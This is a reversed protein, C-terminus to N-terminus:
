KSEIPRQVEELKTLDCPDKLGVVEDRKIERLEMDIDQTSCLESKGKIKWKGGDETIKPFRKAMEDKADSATKKNTSKTKLVLDKARRAVENFEDRLKDKMQNKTKEGSGHGLFVDNGKNDKRILVANELRWANGIKKNILDYALHNYFVAHDGIVLDDESSPVVKQLSALGPKTVIKPKWTTIVEAQLDDFANWRLVIKDAGFKNIRKNFETKGVSDAFSRFNVLSVLYDCHLLTRLRPPKQPVFLKIIAEYPDKKGADTLTWKYSSCQDGYVTCRKSRSMKLMEANKKKDTREAYADPVSPKWYDRADYNVRPGYIEAPPNFPYGFARKDGKVTQQTEQMYTVTAVRKVIERQLEDEDTFDFTDSAAAMDSMIAAAKSANTWKRAKLFAAREKAKMTAGKLVVKKQMSPGGNQQVVHTLEHALLRRGEHTHPSYQGSGFVINKGVTYALANVSAASEAARSDSHVRVGSFDYGLLASMSKQTPAPLPQGGAQISGVYGDVATDDSIGSARKAQALEMQEDSEGMFREEDQDDEESGRGPKRQVSLPSVSVIPAHIVGSTAASFAAAVKDAALDAEREFSDYPEGIVLKRQLTNEERASGAHASRPSRTCSACTAGGITHQGCSCKRQLVLGRSGTIEPAGARTQQKVTLSNM